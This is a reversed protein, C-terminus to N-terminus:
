IIHNSKIYHIFLSMSHVQFDLQTDAPAQQFDLSIETTVAPAEEVTVTTEARVVQDEPVAITAM